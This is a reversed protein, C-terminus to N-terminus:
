HSTRKNSYMFPCIHIPRTNHIHTYLKSDDVIIISVSRIDIRNSFPLSRSFMKIGINWKKRCDFASRKPSNLSNLYIVCQVRESKREGRNRTRKKLTAQVSLSLVFFALWVCVCVCASARVSLPFFHVHFPAFSLFLTYYLRFRFLLCKNNSKYFTSSNGHRGKERDTEHITSFLCRVLIMQSEIHLDNTISQMASQQIFFFVLVHVCVRAISFWIWICVNCVCLVGRVANVCM